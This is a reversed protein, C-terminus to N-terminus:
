IRVNQWHPFQPESNLLNKIYLDDKCQTEKPSSVSNSCQLYAFFNTDPMVMFFSVQSLSSLFFTCSNVAALGAPVSLVPDLGGDAKIGAVRCTLRSHWVSASSLVLEMTSPGDIYCDCATTLHVFVGQNAMGSGLIDTLYTPHMWPVASFAFSLNGWNQGNESKSEKPPM